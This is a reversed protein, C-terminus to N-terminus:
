KLTLMEIAKEQDEVEIVLKKYHEDYLEVVISKSVDMVDCFITGEKVIYTGATSVAINATAQPPTTNWAFTSGGGAILTTSSNPCFGLAGSITAVPIPTVTFVVDTTAMCGNADTVTVTFTNNSTTVIPEVFDVQESTNWLYNYIPTGGETTTYISANTFDCVDGVRTKVNISLEEPQEISITNIQM